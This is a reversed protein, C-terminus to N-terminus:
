SLRFKMAIMAQKRKIMDFNSCKQEGTGLFTDARRNRNKAAEILDM